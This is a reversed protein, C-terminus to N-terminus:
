RLSEYWFAAAESLGVVSLLAGSLAPEDVLCSLAEDVVASAVEGAVSLEALGM